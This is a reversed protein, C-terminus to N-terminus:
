RAIHQRYLSLLVSKAAAEYSEMWADQWEDAIGLADAAESACDRLGSVADRESQYLMHHQAFFAEGDQAGHEAGSRIAEIITKM